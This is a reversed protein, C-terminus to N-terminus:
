MTEIGVQDSATTTVQAAVIMWSVEVADHQRFQLVDADCCTGQSVEVDWGLHASNPTVHLGGILGVQEKLRAGSIILYNRM